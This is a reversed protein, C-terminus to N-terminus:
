GLHKTCWESMDLCLEEDDCIRRWIDVLPSFVRPTRGSQEKYEVYKRRIEDCGQVKGRICLAICLSMPFSVGKEALERVANYGNVITGPSADDERCCWRKAWGALVRALLEDDKRNTEDVMVKLMTKLEEAVNKRSWEDGLGDDKAVISEACLSEIMDNRTEERNEINGQHGNVDNELYHGTALGYCVWALGYVDSGKGQIHMIEANPALPGSKYKRQMSKIDEPAEYTFNNPASQKTATNRIWALGGCIWPMGNQDMQFGAATIGRVTLGQPSKDMKHLDSVITLLRYIAVVLHKTTFGFCEQDRASFLNLPGMAAMPVSLASRKNKMELIACRQKPPLVSKAESAEMLSRCREWRKYETNLVENDTDLSHDCFQSEVTSFTWNDMDDSLSNLYIKWKQPNWFENLIHIIEMFCDDAVPDFAASM